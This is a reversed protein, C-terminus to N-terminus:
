DDTKNIEHWFHVKSSFYKRAIKHVSRIYPEAATTLRRNIKSSFRLSYNCQKPNSPM